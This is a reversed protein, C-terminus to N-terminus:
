YLTRNCQSCSCSARVTLSVDAGVPGEEKMAM